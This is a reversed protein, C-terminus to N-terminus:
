KREESPSLGQDLISIITTLERDLVIDLTLNELYYTRAKVGMEAFTDPDEVLRLLINFIADVSEGDITYGTEGDKIADSVGGATGGLSPTGCLGAEVYVLGFGEVSGSDKLYVSPMVFLDTASYLLNVDERAIFGLFEVQEELELERVLDRLNPEFPGKGAILYRISLDPKTEKLRALARLVASHGKREEIRSLTSLIIADEPAYRCKFAAVAAKECPQFRQHDVGNFVTHIKKSEVGYIRLVEAASFRSVAMIGAARRFVLGIMTRIRPSHEFRIFENGHVMVFYPIRYIGGAISAALGAWTASTSYIFDPRRIVRNL